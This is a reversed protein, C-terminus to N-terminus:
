EGPVGRHAQSKSPGRCLDLISAAIATGAPGMAARYRDLIAIERSLITRPAGERLRQQQIQWSIRQRHRIIDILQSDLEDIDARANDIEINTSESVNM